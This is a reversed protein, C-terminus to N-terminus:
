SVEENFSSIIKNIHSELKYESNSKLYNLKQIQKLKKDDNLLRRLALYIENSNKKNVIIGNEESIIFKLYNHNTTVIANSAAMAEIISIPFAETPYYSPLVFISSSKLVDVKKKGSVVGLYSVRHNYKLKLSNYILFFRKKIENKSMIHDKLFGGAINVEVEKNDSLIKAVANMFELIGKSALINSLYLIRNKVPKKIKLNEFDKGMANPIIKLNMNPFDIFQDEMEELLLISTDIKSYVWFILGKLIGSNNYFSKFDAGHLHNIINIKKNISITLFPLQRLFGLNSRSGIFYIKQFKEFLIIIPLIVISDLYNFLNLKYKNTNYIIFKINKYELNELYSFAISQGTIPPPLPGILLIKIKM